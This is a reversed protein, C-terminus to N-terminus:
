LLVEEIHQTNQLVDKQISKITERHKLSLRIKHKVIDKTQTEFILESKMKEIERFEEFKKIRNHCKSYKRHLNKYSNQHLSRTSSLDRKVDDCMNVLKYFENHIPSKSGYEEECKAPSISLNLEPNTKIRSTYAASSTRNFSKSNTIRYPSTQNSSLKQISEIQKYSNNSICQDTSEYIDKPTRNRKRSGILKIRALSRQYMPDELRQKQMELFELEKAKTLEDHVSQVNAVTSIIPVHTVHRNHGEKGALYLSTEVGLNAHTSNKNLSSGMESIVRRQILHPVKMESYTQILARKVNRTVSKERYQNSRLTHRQITKSILVDRYSTKM